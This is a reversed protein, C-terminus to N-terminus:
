RADDDSPRSGRESHTGPGDSGAPQARDAYTADIMRRARYGATEFGLGLWFPRSLPNPSDFDVSVTQHGSGLAWDLVAHVLASGIGQGRVSPHSATPGIYPQAHPCIRPAPSTFEVTVLGVDLNDRRALFHVAGNDLLRQHHARAQALTRPTPHAYIPPTSRHAFEIQSLTAIADLDDATGIRVDVRVAAPTPRALQSAFVGARGFGANHLAAGLPDLAVHDITFRAAGDRLLVPALEAFLAVVVATSDVYTPDVALGHAPVFGVSDITRGCIVGVSRRDDYAVFGIYGDAVLQELAVHCYEPDTYSSPTLSRHTRAAVQESAVVSAAEHMSAGNLVRLAVM